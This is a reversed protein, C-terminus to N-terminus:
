EQNLGERARVAGVVDRHGQEAEEWDLYNHQEIAENNLFVITEFNLWVPEGNRRGQVPALLFVTSM